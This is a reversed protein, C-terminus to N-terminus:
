RGPAARADRRAKWESFEDVPAPAADKQHILIIRGDRDIETRVVDLGAARAAKVARTIDNQKFTSPARSM